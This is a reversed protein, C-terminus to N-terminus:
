TAQKTKRMTHRNGKQVLYFRPGRSARGSSEIRKSNNTIRKFIKNKTHVRRKPEKQRLQRERERERKGNITNTNPNQSIRPRAFRPGVIRTYIYIYKKINSINSINYMCLASRRCLSNILCLFRLLHHHHPPPLIFILIHTTFRISFDLNQRVYSIVPNGMRGNQGQCKTPFM